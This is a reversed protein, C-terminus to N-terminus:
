EKMDAKGLMGTLELAEFHELYAINDKNQLQPYYSLNDNQRTVITVYNVNPWTFLSYYQLM